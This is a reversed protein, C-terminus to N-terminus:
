DGGLGVWGIRRGGGGGGERRLVDQGRRGRYSKGTPSLSRIQKRASYNTYNTEGDEAM